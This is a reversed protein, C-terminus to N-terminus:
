HVEGHVIRQGTSGHIHRSTGKQDPIDIERGGLEAGEVGVERTLEKQRESHICAYRKIDVLMITGSVVMNRLRYELRDGPNQARRQFGIRALLLCYGGGLTRQLPLDRVFPCTMACYTTSSGLSLLAIEPFTSVPKGDSIAVSFLASFAAKTRSPNWTKSIPLACTQVG